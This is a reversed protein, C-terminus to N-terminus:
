SLWNITLSSTLRKEAESMSSLRITPVEELKLLKAADWRAHGALIMRDDDIIMPNVWGFQEISSAVQRIQKKSHTRANRQVRPCTATSGDSM